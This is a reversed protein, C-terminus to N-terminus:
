KIIIEILFTYFIAILNYKYIYNGLEELSTYM